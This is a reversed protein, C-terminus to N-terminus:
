SKIISIDKKAQEQVSINLNGTQEESHNFNTNKIAKSINQSVGKLRFFM